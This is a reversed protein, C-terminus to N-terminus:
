KGDRWAEVRQSWREMLGQASVADRGEVTVVFSPKHSHPIILAWEDETEWVKVGDVLDRRTTETAEM